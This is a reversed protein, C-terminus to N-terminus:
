LTGLLYYNYNRPRFSTYTEAKYRFQPNFIATTVAWMWEDTESSEVEYLGPAIGLGFGEGSEAEATNWDTGQGADSRSECSTRMGTHDDVGEEVM